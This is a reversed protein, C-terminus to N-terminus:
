KSLFGTLTTVDPQPNSATDILSVTEGTESLAVPTGLAMTAGSPMIVTDGVVLTPTPPPPALAPASSSPHSAMADQLLCRVDEASALDLPAQGEQNKLFPDAGHALQM